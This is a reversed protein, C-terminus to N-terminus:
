FVPIGQQRLTDIEEDGWEGLSLRAANRILLRIVYAQTVGFQDAVKRVFEREEDRLYVQMSTKMVTM